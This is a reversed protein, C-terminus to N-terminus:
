SEHWLISHVSSSPPATYPLVDLTSVMLVYSTVRSGAHDCETSPSVLFCSCYVSTTSTRGVGGGRGGLGRGEWGVGKGGM